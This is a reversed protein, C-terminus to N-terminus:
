VGYRRLRGRGKRSVWRVSRDRLGRLLTTTFALPQVAYREEGYAQAGSHEVERTM